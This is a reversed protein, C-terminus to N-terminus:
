ISLYQNYPAEGEYYVAELDGFILVFGEESSVLPIIEEMTTLTKGDLLPNVSICYAGIGGRISKAAALIMDLCVQYNGKLEQLLSIDLDQGHYLMGLFKGRHKDSEVFGLYRQRKEKVVYRNIFAKELDLRM